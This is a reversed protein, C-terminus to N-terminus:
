RRDQPRQSRRSKAIRVADDLAQLAGALPALVEDPLLHRHAAVASRATDLARGCLAFQVTEM